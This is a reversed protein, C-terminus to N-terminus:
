FAAAQIKTFTKSDTSALIQRGDKFEAIFTVEKKNGGALVGALAGLPGLAVLGVAGWGISGAMKKVKEETAIQVSSIRNLSLTEGAFGGKPSPLTISGFMLSGSGKNFGKGAHVTVKAMANGSDRASKNEGFDGTALEACCVM